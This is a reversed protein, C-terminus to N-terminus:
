AAMMRGLDQGRAAQMIMTTMLPMMAGGGLGQVVRFAILSEPNWATACLISGVLFVTLAIMWLRKGGLRGQLWGVLPIAVGLALLYGTSVWQITAVDTHLDTALEHLAVAVITSDFIVAIGGVLMAVVIRMIGRDMADM